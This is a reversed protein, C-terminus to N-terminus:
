LSGLSMDVVKNQVVGLQDIECRVVDGHKLWVPPKRFCGVGSPTGTSILDGPLLTVFQSIFAVCDQTQFILENTNSDQVVNGNVFCRIGLNHPDLNPEDKTVIYPGFPFFTDMTKGLLWQGGNRKMQWDRASVDHSVSYGAVHEMANERKINKGAKGIVIVMEVEWDMEQTLKSNYLVNGTPKNVATNFKSFIVPEEPIPFNQEICHERYNMGVCLIKGPDSIPALIDLAELEKRGDGTAIADRVRQLMPEGGELLEKMNKPCEAMACTLDCVQGPSGPVVVALHSHTASKAYTLLKM